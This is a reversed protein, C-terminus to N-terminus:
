GEPGVNDQVVPLREMCELVPLDLPGLLPSHSHIHHQPIEPPPSRRVRSYNYQFHKRPFTM